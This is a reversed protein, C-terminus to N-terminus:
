GAARRRARIFEIHEVLSEGLDRTSWKKLIDVSKMGMLGREEESFDAMKKISRFLADGDTSVRYGNRGDSVLDMGAGVQDSVIVPLGFCMAENVVIGWTERVSPLVLLDSVAYYKAIQGRNQFGFFYVSDAGLQRVYDQLSHRLDGDGVFILSKLEHDLQHYADVLHFLNKEMSLRGCFLIVLSEEPIGFEARIRSRQPKLEASKELLSDYGWSYAFRFLKRDPVGYLRYLHRNARGACLFGSCLKFLTKGLVLRKIRRKRKSRYREIQVNADTMYLFPIRFLTCALLAMWWTPNMWSMLIVADPRGLIIEKLIGFNILGFPWKLYSPQPAYNRLFKFQYGELLEDDGGWQADVKYMEQVDQASLGEHSCFYVTLDIKPHAAL